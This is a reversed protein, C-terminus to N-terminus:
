LLKDKGDPVPDWLAGCLNCYLEFAKVAFPNDPNNLKLLEPPPIGWDHPMIREDPDNEIRDVSFCIICRRTWTCRPEHVKFPGDAIAWRKSEGNELSPGNYYLHTYGLCNLTRISELDLCVRRPRTSDMEEILAM